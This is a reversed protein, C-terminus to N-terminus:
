KRGGKQVIGITLRIEAIMCTHNAYAKTVETTEAVCRRPKSNHYRDKCDAVLSVNLAQDIDQRAANLILEPTQEKLPLCITLPLVVKSLASNVICYELQEMSVVLSKELVDDGVELGFYVLPDIGLDTNFGDAVKIRSLESVVTAVIPLIQPEDFITIMM